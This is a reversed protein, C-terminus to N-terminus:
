VFKFVRENRLLAQVSFEIERSVAGLSAAERNEYWHGVLLLLAQQITAPVDNLQTWGAVFKIVVSNAARLTAGPWTQGSKLVIRGPESIADVFYASAALTSEADLDNYYKVHTVSQLPSRNLEIESDSPFADLWLEWTQTLLALNSIREVHRRATLILRSILVDSESADIRSHNVVDDYTLPELGPPTVLKLPM